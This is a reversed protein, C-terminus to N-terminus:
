VDEHQELYIIASYLLDLSDKFRGLGTNCDDCILKRVAGTQHNHDVALRKKNEEKTKGCIFCQGNQEKLMEEYKEVTMGVIGQSKWSAKRHRAQVYPTNYNQSYSSKICEKCVSRYGTTKSEQKHFESFEKMKGCSSCPQGWCTRFKRKTM